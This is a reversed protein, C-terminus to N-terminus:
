NAAEIDNGGVALITETLDEEPIGKRLYERKLFEM